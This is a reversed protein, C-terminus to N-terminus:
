LFISVLFNSILNLSQNYRPNLSRLPHKMEISLFFQFTAVMVINSFSFYLLATIELCNAYTALLAQMPPPSGSKGGLDEPADNEIEFNSIKARVHLNEIQESEAVLTSIFLNDGKKSFGLEQMKTNRNLYAIRSEETILKKSM